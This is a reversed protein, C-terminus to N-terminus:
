GFKFKMRLFAEVEQDAKTVPSNDDKRIFNLNPHRFYPKVLEGAEIAIRKAFEALEKCM